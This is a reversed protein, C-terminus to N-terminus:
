ALYEELSPHISHSSVNVVRHLPESKHPHRSRASRVRRRDWLAHARQQKRVGDRNKQEQQQNRRGGIKPKM